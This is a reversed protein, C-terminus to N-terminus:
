VLIRGYRLVIRNSEGMMEISIWEVFAHLLCCDCMIRLQRKEGTKSCPHIQNFTLRPLVPEDVVSISSVLM